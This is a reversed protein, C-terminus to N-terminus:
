RDDRLRDLRLGPPRGTYHTRVLCTGCSGGRLANCSPDRNRPPECERLRSCAAKQHCTSIPLPAGPFPLLGISIKLAPVVPDLAWSNKRRSLPALTLETMSM